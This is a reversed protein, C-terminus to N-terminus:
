KYYGVTTTNIPFIYGHEIGNGVATSHFGRGSHNFVVRIKMNM